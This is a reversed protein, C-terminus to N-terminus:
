RPRVGYTHMASEIQGSETTIDPFFRYSPALIPEITQVEVRIVSAIRFREGARARLPAALAAYAGDEPGVVRATGSLKFGKQVFLDIFSVCAHPNALLNRVSNPSAINAIVLTREDLVAWIEKPSVNPWGEADVTALWCLVSRGAVESVAATLLTDAEARYNAAGEAWGLLRDINPHKGPHAQADATHEGYLALGERAAAPTIRGGHRQALAHYVALSGAQGPRNEITALLTGDDALLRLAALHSVPPLTKLTDAFSM